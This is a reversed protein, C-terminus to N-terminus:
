TSFKQTHAHTYIYIVYIKTSIIIKWIAKNIEKLKQRYKGKPRQVYIPGNKLDKDLLELIQIQEPITQLPKYEKSHFTNEQKKTHKKIRQQFHPMQFFFFVGDTM